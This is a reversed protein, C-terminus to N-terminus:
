KSAKDVLATARAIAEMLESHGRVDELSVFDMRYGDPYHKKFEEHRDLRSGKLVGLDAKMYGEHSCAHGGLQTGDGALLVGGCWGDSGGNNFGWIVPLKSLPKDHPNFSAFGKGEWEVIHRALYLNAAAQTTM